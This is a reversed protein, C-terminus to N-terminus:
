ELFDAGASFFKMQHSMPEVGFGVGISIGIGERVPPDDPVDFRRMGVRESLNVNNHESIRHRGDWIHVHEVFADISGTEFDVLVSGLRLRDGSVIVPTPIAFHFWNTSGPAGELDVGWGARLMKTLRDPFQFNMSTGHTWMAHSIAM